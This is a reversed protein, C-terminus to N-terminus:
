SFIRISWGAWWIIVGAEMGVICCQILFSCWLGFTGMWFFPLIFWWLGSNALWPLRFHTTAIIALKAETIALLVSLLGFTFLGIWHRCSRRPLREIPYRKTEGTYENRYWPIILFAQVDDAITRGYYRWFPTVTDLILTLVDMGFEWLQQYHDKYSEELVAVQSLQGFGDACTLFSLV